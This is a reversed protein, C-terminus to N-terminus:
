ELIGRETNSSGKELILEQSYLTLKGCLEHALYEPLKNFEYLLTFLAFAILYTVM